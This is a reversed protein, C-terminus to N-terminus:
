VCDHQNFGLAENEDFEDIAVEEMRGDFAEEWSKPNWHDPNDKDCFERMLVQLKGRKAGGKFFWYDQAELEGEFSYGAGILCLSRGSTIAEWERPQVKLYIDPYEYSMPPTLIVFKLPVKEPQISALIREQLAEIRKLQTQNEYVLESLAAIQETLTPQRTPM